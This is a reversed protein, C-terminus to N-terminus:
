RKVGNLNKEIVELFESTDFPKYLYDAVKLDVASKYKEEDAYGTILIEPILPKAQQTLYERILKIIEIGDMEPIMVDCVILDIKENQVAQMAETGNNAVIVEFKQKLLLKQLSKTIIVEDDIILIRGKM